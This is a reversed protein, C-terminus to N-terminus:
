LHRLENKNVIVDKSSTLVHYYKCGCGEELVQFM